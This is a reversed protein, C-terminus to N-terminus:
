FNLMARETLFRCENWSARETAWLNSCKGHLCSVPTRNGVSGIVKEGSPSADRTIRSSPPCLTFTLPILTSKLQCDTTVQRYIWQSPLIQSGARAAGVANEFLLVCLKVRSGQETAVQRYLKPSQERVSEPKMKKPVLYKAWDLAYSQM